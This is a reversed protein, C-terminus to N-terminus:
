EKFGKENAVGISEEAVIRKNRSISTKWAQRGSLFHDDIQELSLRATEPVLLFVIVWM